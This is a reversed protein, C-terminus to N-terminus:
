PQIEDSCYDELGLSYWLNSEPSLPYKKINGYHDIVTEKVAAFFENFDDQIDQTVMPDTFVPKIDPNLELAFPLVAIWPILPSHSNVDEVTQAKLNKQFKPPIRIKKLSDIFVSAIYHKRMDDPTFGKHLFIDRVYTWTPVGSFHTFGKSYLLNASNEMMYDFFGSFSKVAAQGPVPNGDKGRLIRSTIQWWYAYWHSLNEDTPNGRPIEQYPDDIFDAYKEPDDIWLNESNRQRKKTLVDKLLLRPDASAISFEVARRGGPVIDSPSSYGWMTAGILLSQPSVYEKGYIMKHYNPPTADNTGDYRRDRLM